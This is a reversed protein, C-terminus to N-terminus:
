WPAAWPDSPPADDEDAVLKEGALHRVRVGHVEAALKAREPPRAARITTIGSSTSFIAASTMSNLRPKSITNV